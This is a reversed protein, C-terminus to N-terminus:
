AAKRADVSVPGAGFYALLLAAGTLAINKMFMAMQMQQQMADTVGWFQHMSFNVPVLFIVLLWAGLRTKYGLLVSLGGALSLLGAVPVLVKAAPVGAAAAYDAGAGTVHSIGSLVFILAFLVRGILPLFRM